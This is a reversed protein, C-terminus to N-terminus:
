CLPNFKAINNLIDEFLDKGKNQQRWMLECLYSGVM